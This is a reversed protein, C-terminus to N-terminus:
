VHFSDAKGVPAIEILSNEIAIGVAEVGVGKPTIGVLQPEINILSPEINVGNPEFKFIQPIISILNAEIGIGGAGNNVLCPAINILNTEVGVGVLAAQFINTDFDFLSTPSMIAGLLEQFSEASGDQELLEPVSKTLLDSPKIKQHSPTADAEREHSAKVAQASNSPFSSLIYSLFSSGAPVTKVGVSLSRVAYNAVRILDDQAGQASGNNSALMTAALVAAWAQETTGVSSNAAAPAPAPATEAAAGCALAM